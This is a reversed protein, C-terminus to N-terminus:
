ISIIEKHGCYECIHVFSAEIDKVEPKPEVNFQTTSGINHKYVPDSESQESKLSALESKLEEVRNLEDLHPITKSLYYHDLEEILEEQLQERKTM